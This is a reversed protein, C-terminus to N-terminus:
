RVSECSKVSSDGNTAATTLPVPPSGVILQPLKAQLTEVNRMIRRNIRDPFCATELYLKGLRIAVGGLSYHHEVYNRGRRGIEALDFKGDLCESLIEYLTDPNTNIIPCHNPDVVMRENRIYCLVPKGKAM